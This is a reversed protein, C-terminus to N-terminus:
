EKEYLGYLEFDKAKECSGQGIEQPKKDSAFWLDSPLADSHWCVSVTNKKLDIYLRANDSNCAHEKCAFAFLIDGRQELPATVQKALNDFLGDFHAQDLAKHAEKQLLPDTWFSKGDKAEFSFVGVWEKLPALSSVDVVAFSPAACGMVMLCLFTVVRYM